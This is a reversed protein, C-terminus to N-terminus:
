NAYLSFWSHFFKVFLNEWTQTWGDAAISENVESRLACRLLKKQNNKQFQLKEEEARCWMDVFYEQGLRAMSTFRHESLLLYRYYETQSIKTEEEDTM